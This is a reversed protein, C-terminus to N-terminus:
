RAGKDLSWHVVAGLPCMFARRAILASEISTAKINWTAGVVEM